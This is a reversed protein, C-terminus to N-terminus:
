GHRLRLLGDRGQSHPVNTIAEEAVDRTVIKSDNMNADNALNIKM